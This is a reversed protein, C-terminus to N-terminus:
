GAVRGKALRIQRPSAEFWRYCSRTLVSSDSYGLLRAVHTLPMDSESLYRLAMDRRVLDRVGEFSKGELKLRRQLARPHMGLATAVDNHSCSGQQILHEIVAGVRASLDVRSPPYHVTIFSTALEYLLLDRGAIERDLAARDVLLMDAEAGFRVPAGFHAEYASPAAVPAHAMYIQRARVAGDSLEALSRQILLLMYETAQVSPVTGPLHAHFRLTTTGTAADQTMALEAVNSYARMHETFYTFADRLTASNRMAVEMPGLGKLGDPGAALRMGFDPCGLDSAGHELLRAFSHYPIAAHRSALVDADLWVKALLADHDGGLQRALRAVGRLADVRVVPVPCVGGEGGSDPGGPDLALTM